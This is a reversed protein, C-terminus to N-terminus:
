HSGGHQLEVGHRKLFGQAWRLAGAHADGEIGGERLVYASISAGYEREFEEPTYTRIEPILGAMWAGAPTPFEPDHYMTAHITSALVITFEERRQAETKFNLVNTM